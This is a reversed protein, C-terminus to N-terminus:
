RRGDCFATSTRAIGEVAQLEQEVSAAVDKFQDAGLQLLVDADGYVVSAGRFTSIAPLQDLVPDLTGREVRLASIAIIEQTGRKVGVKRAANGGAATTEAARAEIAWRGRLDANWFDGDVLEQLLGLSGEEVRVHVM